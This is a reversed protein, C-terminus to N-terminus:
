NHKTIAVLMVFEFVASLKEKNSLESNATYSLFETAARLHDFYVCAEFRLRPPFREEDNFTNDPCARFNWFSKGHFAGRALLPGSNFGEGGSGNGGDTTDARKIEVEGNNGSHPPQNVVQFLNLAAKVEPKSVDMFGVSGIPAAGAEGPQLFEARPTSVLLVYDQSM